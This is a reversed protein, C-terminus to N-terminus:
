NKDKPLKDVAIRLDRIAVTLTRLDENFVKLADYISSIVQKIDSIETQLKDTNELVKEGDASTFTIKIQRSDDYKKKM